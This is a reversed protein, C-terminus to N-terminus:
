GLRQRSLEMAVDATAGDFFDNMVVVLDEKGCAGLAHSRVWPLTKSDCVPKTALLVSNSASAELVSYAVAKPINSATAQCQINVFSSRGGGCCDPRLVAGFAQVISDGDLTANGADTYTSVSDVSVLLLLRKRTRRLEGITQGHLDALTGAVVRDIHGDGQRLAAALAEALQQDSPRKCADPVGALSFTLVNSAKLLFFPPLWFVYWGM